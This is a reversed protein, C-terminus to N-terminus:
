EPADQDRLLAPIGARRRKQEGKSPTIYRAQDSEMLRLFDAARLVVVTESGNDISIAIGPISNDGNEYIAKDAERLMEKSISHSEHSTWKLSWTISGDAVDLKATWQNGSGRQPERGFISAWFREFRKGSKQPAEGPRPRM